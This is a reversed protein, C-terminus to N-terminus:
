AAATPRTTNARSRRESKKELGRAAVEDSNAGFLAKAQNKVGLILNHFEWQPAILADRTAALTNQAHLEAEQAVRLQDHLTAAAQLSYSADYPTYGNIAKLALYADIDAQLQQSSMRSKQTSSM